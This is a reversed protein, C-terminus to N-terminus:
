VNSTGPRRPTFLLGWSVMDIGLLQPHLTLTSGVIRQPLVSQVVGLSREVSEQQLQQLEPYLDTATTANFGDVTM